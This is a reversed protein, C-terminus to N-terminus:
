GLRESPSIGTALTSLSVYFLTFASGRFVRLIWLLPGVSDVVLFRACSFAFIIAGLCASFKRGHRDTQVGIFPM